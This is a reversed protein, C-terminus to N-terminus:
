FAISVGGIVLIQNNNQVVVETSRINEELDSIKEKALSIDGSDVIQNIENLAVIQQSKESNSNDESSSFCFFCTLLIIIAGFIATVLFLKSKM